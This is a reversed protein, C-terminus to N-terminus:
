RKTNPWCDQGVTELFGQRPRNGKGVLAAVEVITLFLEEQMRKFYLGEEWYTLPEQTANEVYSALRLEEDPRPVVAVPVSTLRALEAARVRRHGFVIQLRQPDAPYPRAEVHGMFGFAAISAM